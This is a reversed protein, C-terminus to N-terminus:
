TPMKEVMEGHILEFRRDPHEALLQEYETITYPRDQFVM